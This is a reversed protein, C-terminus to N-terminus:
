DSQLTFPRRSRWPNELPEGFLNLQQPRPRYDAPTLTGDGRIHTVCTKRAAMVRGVLLHRHCVQPDEECCMIAVRFGHLWSELRQIGALFSESEAM